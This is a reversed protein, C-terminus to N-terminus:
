AVTARRLCLDCTRITDPAGSFDFVDRIQYLFLGVAPCFISWGVIRMVLASQRLKREDTTMPKGEALYPLLSANHEVRTAMAVLSLRVM